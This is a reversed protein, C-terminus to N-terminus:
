CSVDNSYMSNCFTCVAPIPLPKPLYVAPIPLYVAPTGMEMTVYGM